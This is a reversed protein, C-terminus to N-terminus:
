LKERSFLQNEMNLTTPSRRPVNSPILNNHVLIQKCKCPPEQTERNANILVMWFCVLNPTDYPVSIGMHSLRQSVLIAIKFKYNLFHYNKQVSLIVIVFYSGWGIKKLNHNLNWSMFLIALFVCPARVGTTALECVRSATIVDDVIALDM